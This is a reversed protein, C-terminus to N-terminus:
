EMSGDSSVVAPIFIKKLPLLMQYRPEFTEYHEFILEVLEEGGILRLNQKGREFQRAHGSYEGLTIFLGHEREGIHGNLQAVEPQGINNLTQKCQVKIIPPEFGLEDKHAIIDVGGDGSKPTVRAYYGMRELLHAVFQEFQYPDLKLKLRKLIFDTTSEETTSSAAEVTEQDDDNDLEKGEFAALFEESNNKIQFLAIFAGIEHLAAQSFETRALSTTWTVKRRNPVKQDAKDFYYDGDVIGLNVMRDAKSPYVILDGKKMEHVFRFLTGADVPVAGKKKEPYADTVAKKFADRSAPIKSLDGVAPWGIAVYKEVIPATGHSRAMHVGWITREDAM